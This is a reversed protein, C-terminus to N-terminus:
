MHAIDHGELFIRGETPIDLAGVLNMLTSKGCGSPGVLAMFEGKKVELSIGNIAPVEVTGIKYIKKVNELKIIEKM